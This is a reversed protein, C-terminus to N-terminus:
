FKFLYKIAEVLATIVTIAVPLKWWTVFLKRFASRLASITELDAIRKELEITKSELRDCKEKYIINDCNHRLLQTNYEKIEDLRENLYIIKNILSQVELEINM